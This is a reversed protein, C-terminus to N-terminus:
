AQTSVDKSVQKRLAEEYRFRDTKGRISGLRLLFRDEIRLPERFSLEAGATEGIVLKERPFTLADRGVEVVIVSCGEGQCVFGLRFGYCRRSM